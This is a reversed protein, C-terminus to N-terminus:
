VNLAAVAEEEKENMKGCIVMAQPFGGLDSKILENMNGAKIKEAKSGLAYLGIIKSEKVVDKGRNKEIKELIKLGEQVGMLKKEDARIDLLCLTHLGIKQNDIIQDYFSKPEYNKEQFVISVTRGFRYEDLGTKGLMNTMSIGPIVATKIGMKKADILLQVHTTATLCNGYVLLAIDKGKSAKLVPGFEEEIGKRGLATIKNGILVGLEEISGEAYRSTYNDLFVQECKKLAEIAEITLHKPKLGIGVLYFM